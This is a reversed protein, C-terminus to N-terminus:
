KEKCQPCTKRELGYRPFDDYYDDLVQHNYRKQWVLTCNDCAFMPSLQQTISRKKPQSDLRRTKNIVDQWTLEKM